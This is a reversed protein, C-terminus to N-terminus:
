CGQDLRRIGLIVETLEKGWNYSQLYFSLKTIKQITMQDLKLISLVGGVFHSAM